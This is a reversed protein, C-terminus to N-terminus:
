GMGLAVMQRDGLARVEFVARGRERMALEVAASARAPQRGSRLLAELSARDMPKGAVYRQGEGSSAPLAAGGPACPPSTPGPSIRMRISPSTRTTPITTPAPRSARPLAPSSGPWSWISAPSRRWRPPRSARRRRRRWPSSSGPCRRRIASRRPAPSRRACRARPPWPACRPWPPPPIWAASRPPPHRRRAGRIARGEPGPEDAGPGGGSRRPDGRELGRLLPPGRGRRAARARLDGLLDARGIEGAARLARARLRGDGSLAASGLAPRSRAPAARVRYHRALPPGPAAARRALGPPAGRTKDFPVWGLASALERAREPVGGVVDLIRALARLDWREVALVAAVFVTGPPLPDPARGPGLPRAGTAAALALAFGAEGAVRLGDLHADLRDDLARLDALDYLVSRAARERLGWLFSAQFAHDEAIEQEIEAGRRARM